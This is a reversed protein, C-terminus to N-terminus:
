SSLHEHLKEFVTVGRALVNERWSASNHTYFVDRLREAYPLRQAPAKHIFSNEQVVAKLVFLPAVTGFEQALTVVEGKSSAPLLEAVGQAVFGGVEKYGKVVTHSGSPDHVLVANGAAFEETYVREAVGPTTAPMLIVTDVGSPGLGTHVDIIGLKKINAFDVHTTLFDRLTVLSPELKSGAYYVAEPMHYNGSVAARKMADWGKTTLDYVARIWFWNEWQLSDTGPNLLKFMDMYGSNNPGV